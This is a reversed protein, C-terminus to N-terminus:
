GHRTDAEPVLGIAAYLDLLAREAAAWHYRRAAAALAHAQCAALRGPELLERFAAVLADTALDRGRRWLGRGARHARARRLRQVGDGQRPSPRSLKNPASFRANRNSADVGYYIV